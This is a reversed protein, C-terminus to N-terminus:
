ASEIEILTDIKGDALKLKTGLDRDYIVFGEISCYYPLAAKQDLYIMHITRLKIDSPMTIEYGEFYRKMVQLGFNTLRMGRESKGRFNGFMMRIVTEDTMSSFKKYLEGGEKETQERIYDILASHIKNM